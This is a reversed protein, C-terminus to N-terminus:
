QCKILNLFEERTEQQKFNGRFTSTTFEGDDGQLRACFHDAKIIVIVGLPKINEEIWDAIEKTLREQIQLKASFYKVIKDIKNMGLLKKDPIIGVYAIGAFPVMHHECFSIFKTNRILMDKDMSEFITIPIINEEIKGNREKEDMVKLKKRYGYFFNEYLRAVRDPTAKIGERHSDEGINLLIEEVCVKIKEKDM